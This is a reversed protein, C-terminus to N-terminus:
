HVIEVCAHTYVIKVSM